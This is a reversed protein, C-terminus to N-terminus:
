VQRWLATADLICCITRVLLALLSQLVMPDYQNWNVTCIHAIDSDCPNQVSLTKKDMKGVALM